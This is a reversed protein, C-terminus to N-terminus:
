TYFFILLVSFKNEKKLPYKLVKLAKKINDTKLLKLFFGSKFEPLDNIRKESLLLVILLM